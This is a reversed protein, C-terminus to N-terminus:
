NDFEIINVSFNITGFTVNNAVLAVRDICTYVYAASGIPSFGGGGGFNM